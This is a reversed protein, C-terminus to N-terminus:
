FVQTERGRTMSRKKKKEGEGRRVGRGCKREGMKTRNGGEWSLTLSVSAQHRAGDRTERDFPVPGSVSITM